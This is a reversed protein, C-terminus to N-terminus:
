EYPNPFRAREHITAADWAADYAICALQFKLKTDRHLDYRKQAVRRYTNLANIYANYTNLLTQMFKMKEEISSNTWEYQYRTRANRLEKIAEIMLNGHM